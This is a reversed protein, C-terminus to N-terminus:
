GKIDDRRDESKEYQDAKGQNGNQSAAFIGGINQKGADAKQAGHDVCVHRQNGHKRIFGQRQFDVSKEIKENNEAQRKENLENM